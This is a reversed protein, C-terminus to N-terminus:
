ARLAVDLTERAVLAPTSCCHRGWRGCRAASSLTRTSSRRETITPGTQVWTSASKPAWTTFTSGGSAVDHAM